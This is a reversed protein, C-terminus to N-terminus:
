NRLRGRCKVAAPSEPGSALATCRRQTEAYKNFYERAEGAPMALLKQVIDRSVQFHQYDKPNGWAGGWILFGHNSFIQVAPESMGPAALSRDLYKAGAPPKIELKTGTKILYPNVAPNIDIAAGYAHLSITQGGPIKRDNFASTNNDAMSVDDDGDYANMLVAKEIPFKVERLEKFLELVQDSLADLVVIVGDTKIEKEFNVYAFRVLRLRDCSSFTAVLVHKNRMDQCLNDEIAHISGDFMSQKTDKALISQVPCWFILLAVAVRQFMLAIGM